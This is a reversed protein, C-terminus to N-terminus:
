INESQKKWLTLTFRYILLFVLATLVSVFFGVPGIPNFHEPNLFKTILFPGACSSSVGLVLIGFTGKPEGSPLFAQATMGVVIGFGLWLFFLNVWSQATISLDM